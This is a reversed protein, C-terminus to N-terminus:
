KVDGSINAIIADQLAQEGDVDEIVDDEEFEAEGSQTDCHHLGQYQFQQQQNQHLIVPPIPEQKLLRQQNVMLEFEDPHVEKM